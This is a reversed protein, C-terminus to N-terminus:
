ECAGFLGADDLTVAYRVERLVVEGLDDVKTAGDLRWGMEEYFGRARENTQLVWLTAASFGASRLSACASLLLVRGAGRRWLQPAVHIATVEGVEPAAGDDRSPSIHAFGVVADNDEAVFVGTSPWSTEGVIRTWATVRRDVSLRDLVADPVLGRYAVQWTEVHIEAIRPVDDLTAPRVHVADITTTM